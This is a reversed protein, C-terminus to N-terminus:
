VTVHFYIRMKQPINALNIVRFQEIFCQQQQYFLSAWTIVAFLLLLWLLNLILRTPCYQESGLMQFCVVISQHLFRGPFPQTYEPWLHACGYACSFHDRFIGRSVPENMLLHGSRQTSSLGPLSTARFELSDQYGQVNELMPSAQPSLPLHACHGCMPPGM